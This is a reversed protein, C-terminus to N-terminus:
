INTLKIYFKLLYIYLLEYLIVVKRFFISNNTNNKCAITIERQKYTKWGYFRGATERHNLVSPQKRARPELAKLKGIQPHFLLEEYSTELDDDIKKM